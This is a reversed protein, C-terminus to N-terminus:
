LTSQEALFAEVQASFALSGTLIQDSLSQPDEFNPKRVLEQEVISDVGPGPTSLEAPNWGAQKFIEIFKSQLQRNRASLWVQFTFSEHLFVIAIKLGVSTLSKPMFSFYTMDMYGPYVASVEVDPHEAKLRTQLRMMFQIIGRYARQVKGETLLREYEGYVDDASKM